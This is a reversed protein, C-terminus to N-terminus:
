VFDPVITTSAKPAAGAYTSYGDKCSWTGTFDPGTTGATHTYTVTTYDIITASNDYMGLTVSM